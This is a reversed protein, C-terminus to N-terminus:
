GYFGFKKNDTSKEKVVKAVGLILHTIALFLYVEKKANSKRLKEILYVAGRSLFDLLSTKRRDTQIIKPYSLICNQM